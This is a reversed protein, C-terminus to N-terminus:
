PAPGADTASGTTAAAAPPPPGAQRQPAGPPRPSAGECGCAPAPMQLGRQRERQARRRGAQRPPAAVRPPRSVGGAAGAERAPQARAQAALAQAQRAAAQVAAAQASAEAAAPPQAALRRLVEQAGRWCAQGGGLASGSVPGEVSEAHTVRCVCWRGPLGRALRPSGAHTTCTPSRV